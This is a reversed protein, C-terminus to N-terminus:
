SSYSVYTRIFGKSMKSGNKINKLQILAIRLGYELELTPRRHLLHQIKNQGIQLDNSQGFFAFRRFDDFSAIRLPDPPDELGRSTPQTVMCAHRRHNAM